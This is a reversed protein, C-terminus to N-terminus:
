KEERSLFNPDNWVKYIYSHQSGIRSINYKMYEVDFFDYIFAKDDESLPSLMHDKNKDIELKGNIYLVYGFYYAIERECFVWLATAKTDSMINSIINIYPISWPTCFSIELNKNDINTGCTNYRIGWNNYRWDYWYIENHTTLLYSLVRGNLYSALLINNEKIENPISWAGSDDIINNCEKFVYPRLEKWSNLIDESSYKNNDERNYFASLINESSEAIYTSDPYINYLLKKIDDLTISNNDIVINNARSLYFLIDNASENSINEINLEESIDLFAPEPIIKKLDVDGDDNIISRVVNEFDEKTKFLLKSFIYNPM